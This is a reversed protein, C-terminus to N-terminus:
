RMHWFFNFGSKAIEIFYDNSKEVGQNPSWCGDFSEIEFTLVTGKYFVEPNKGHLQNIPIGTAKIKSRLPKQHKMYTYDFVVFKYFLGYPNEYMCLSIETKLGRYSASTEEVCAVRFKWTQYWSTVVRFLAQLAVWNVQLSTGKILMYIYVSWRWFAGGFPLIEASTKYVVVIFEFLINGWVVRKRKSYTEWQWSLATKKHIHMYKLIIIIIM